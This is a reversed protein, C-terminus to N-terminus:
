QQKEIRSKLGAMRIAAIEGFEDGFFNEPWNEIEGFENLGLPALCSANGSYNCFYLKAQSSNITNEAVRRQFRRLLHESHSEVVVQVNRHTAAHIIVDALGSQVAPHL